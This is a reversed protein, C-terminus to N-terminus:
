CFAVAGFFSCCVKFEVIKEYSQLSHEAEKGSLSDPLNIPRSHRQEERKKYVVSHIYAHATAQKLGYTKGSGAKM